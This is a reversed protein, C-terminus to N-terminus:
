KESMGAARKLDKILQEAILVVPKGLGGTTLSEKVVPRFVQIVKEKDNPEPRRSLTHNRALEREEEFNDLCNVLTSFRLCGPHREGKKIQWKLRTLVLSLDQATFGAKLFEYWSRERDYKMSLNFGTLQCYTAHLQDIESVSKQSHPDSKM